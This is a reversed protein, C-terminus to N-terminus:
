IQMAFLVSCCNFLKKLHKPLSKIRSLAYDEEYSNCFFSKISEYIKHTLM